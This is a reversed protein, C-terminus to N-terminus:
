KRKTCVVQNKYKLNISKYKEWGSQKIGYKYFLYLKRFKLDLNTADGLLIIQKGIKPVIEFEKNENFYVQETLANLFKNQHIFNALYYIDKLENEGEIECINNGKIKEYSYNKIMGNVLMVRSVYKEDLPLIEGYRDIYFSGKNTLIRAIPQRQMLEVSVKGNLDSFVNVDSVYPNERIKEEINGFHLSSVNKDFLDGVENSIILKVDKKILFTDSGSYQINISLEKVKVNKQKASVYYLAVAIASVVIVWLLIYLIRKM